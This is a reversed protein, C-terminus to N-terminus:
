EDPMTPWLTELATRDPQGQEDVPLAVCTKVFIEGIGRLARMLSQRLAEVEFGAGPEVAIGLAEAGDAAYVRIAAARAVSPLREIQAEIKGSFMRTGGLNIRDDTRGLKTIAGDSAMKALFGPFVWGDADYAPRSQLYGEFRQDPPVWLALQGVQDGTIPTGDTDRVEGVIGCCTKGIQGPEHTEPDYEKLAYVSTENTGAGLVIVDGFFGHARELLEPKATGAGVFVRSIRHERDEDSAHKLILHLSLPSLMLERTETRRILPWAADTAVDGGIIHVGSMMSRFVDRMARLSSLGTTMYVGGSATGLLDCYRLGDMILQDPGVAMAQTDRPTNATIFYTKGAPARLQPGPEDILLKPHVPVARGVPADVNEPMLVFDPALDFPEFQQPLQATMVHGGIRWTAFWSAVTVAFNPISCSVRSGQGAGYDVLIDALNSIARDLKAFSISQGDASVLATNDPFRRLVRSWFTNPDDGPQM